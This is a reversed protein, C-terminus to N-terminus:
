KVAEVEHVDMYLWWMEPFASPNDKTGGTHHETGLTGRVRVRAPLKLRALLDSDRSHEPGYLGCTQGDGLMLYYQYVFKPHVKLEGELPWLKQTKQKDAATAEYVAVTSVAAAGATRMLARRSLREM